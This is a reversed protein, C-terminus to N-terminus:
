TLSVQSALLNVAAAQGAWLWCRFACGAASPAALLPIGPWCRFPCGATSCPSGRVKERSYGPM